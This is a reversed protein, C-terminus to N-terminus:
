KRDGPKHLFPDLLFAACFRSSKNKQQVRVIYIERIYNYRVVVCFEFEARGLANTMGIFPIVDDFAVEKYELDSM